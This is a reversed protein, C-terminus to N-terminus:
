AKKKRVRKAAARAREAIALKKFDRRVQSLMKLAENRKGAAALKEAEEIRRNGIQDVGKRLTKVHVDARATVFRQNKDVFKLYKVLEKVNESEIEERLYELDKRLAQEMQRKYVVTRMARVVSKDNTVPSEVHVVEGDPDVIILATRSKLRYTHALLRSSKSGANSWYWRFNKMQSKVDRQFFYFYDDQALNSQKSSAANKSVYFVIPLPAKGGHTTGRILADLKEPSHVKDATRWPFNPLDVRVTGSTPTGQAPFTVGYISAEGFVPLELLLVVWCPVAWRGLFRVSTM